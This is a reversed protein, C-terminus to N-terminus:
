ILRKEVWPFALLVEKELRAHKATYVMCRM